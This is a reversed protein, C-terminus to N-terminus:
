EVEAAALIEDVQAQAAIGSAVIAAVAAAFQPYDDALEQAAEWEDGLNQGYIFSKLDSWVGAAKAAVILKLKSFRRVPAPIPDYEYVSFWEKGTETERLEYGTFRAAYGEREAPANGARPYAGLTAAEEASLFGANIQRGDVRVLGTLRKTGNETYFYEM